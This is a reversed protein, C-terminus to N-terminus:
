CVEYAVKGKAYREWDQLRQILDSFDAEDEYEAKITAKSM